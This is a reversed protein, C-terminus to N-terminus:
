CFTMLYNQFHDESLELLCIVPLMVEASSFAELSSFSTSEKSSCITSDELQGEFDGELEESSGV